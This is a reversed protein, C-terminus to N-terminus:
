PAPALIETITNETESRLTAKIDSWMKWAPDARLRGRVKAITEERRGFSELDRYEYVFLADWPEGVPYRNLYIAYRSLLGESMWGKVQPIVYGDVYPRYQDLANYTYPIVYAVRATAPGPDAATANWALDASYTQVPRALKLGAPSLGGPATREIEKWRHTAAHTSFSLVTMADWTGTTVFPNFLIQYDRLTGDRKLRELRQLGEGLLYARFAPRDAAESRYTILLERPGGEAEAARVAMPMLLVGALSLSLGLTRLGRCRARVAVARWIGSWGIMAVSGAGASQVETRM